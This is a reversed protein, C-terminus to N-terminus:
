TINDDVTIRYINGQNGRKKKKREQITKCNFGTRKTSLIVNFNM